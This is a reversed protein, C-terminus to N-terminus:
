PLAVPDKPKAASREPHRDSNRAWVRQLFNWRIRTFITRLEAYLKPHHARLAHPQEFFAEVSVAFFEAPDTAGYTDLLTSDGSEDAARLSAFESRM